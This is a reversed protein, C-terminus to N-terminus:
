TLDEAQAWDELLPLDAISGLQCAGANQFDPFSQMHIQLSRFEKRKRRVETRIRERMWPFATARDYAGLLYLLLPPRDVRLWRVDQSALGLAAKQEYVHPYTAAIGPNNAM